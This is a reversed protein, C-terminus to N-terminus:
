PIPKWKNTKLTYLLITIKPLMVFNQWYWKVFRKLKNANSLM